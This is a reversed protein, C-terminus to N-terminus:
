DADTATLAWAVGASPDEAALRLVWGTAPAGDDWVFWRLEAVADGLDDAAVPWHDLGGTLAAAAWWAAFRGAAAGRRRGHAGGSAGAWALWAMASAADVEAVRARRLGFARLAGAADGEVAVAEVRGNSETAWAAPVEALARVAERDQDDTAFAPPDLGLAVTSWEAAAPLAPAPFEAKTVQYDAVAYAPEWRALALPIDLVDPDVDAERLDEGRVVREHGVVARTPGRVLHSEIESWTHTSAAVEALPGFGFRAAAAGRGDADDVAAAAFPGPADLALRYGIYATVPWLQRGRALAARCLDRAEVLQEWAGADAREDVYRTLEDLDGRNTLEAIRESGDASDGSTSM